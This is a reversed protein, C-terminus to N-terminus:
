PNNCKQYIIPKKFHKSSAIQPSEAQYFSEFSISKDRITYSKRYVVAYEDDSRKEIRDVYFYRTSTAGTGVPYYWLDWYSENGVMVAKDFMEVGEMFIFSEPFYAVKHATATYGKTVIAMKRPGEIHFHQYPENSGENCWLGSLWGIDPYKLKVADHDTKRAQKLSQKWYQEKEKKRKKSDQANLIGSCLALFFLLLCPLRLNM